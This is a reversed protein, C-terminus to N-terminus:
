VPVGQAQICFAYCHYNFLVQNHQYPRAHECAREWLATDHRCLYRASLRYMLAQMRTVGALFSLNAERILYSGSVTEGGDQEPASGAGQQEILQRTKALTSMLTLRAYHGYLRENIFLAERRGTGTVGASFTITVGEPYAPSYGAFATVGGAVSLLQGHTLSEAFPIFHRVDYFRFFSWSGTVQNRLYTMRRLQRHMEPFPKSSSIFFGAAAKDPLNLCHALFQKGARDARIQVLYPARDALSEQTEGQYLSQWPLHTGLLVPVLHQGTQRHYEGSDIVAFLPIGPIFGPPGPQYHIDGNESPLPCTLNHEGTLVAPIGEDHQRIVQRLLPLEPQQSEGAYATLPELTDYQAASYHEPQASFYRRMNRIAQDRDAGAVAMVGSFQMDDRTYRCQAVWYARFVAQSVPMM